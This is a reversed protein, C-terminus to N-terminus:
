KYISGMIRILALKEDFNDSECDDCGPSIELHLPQSQWEPAPSISSSWYYMATGRDDPNQSMESILIDICLDDLSSSGTAGLHHHDGDDDARQPPATKQFM